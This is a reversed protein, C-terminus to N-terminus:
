RGRRFSAICASPLFRRGDYCFRFYILKTRACIIFELSNMGFKSFSRSVKILDIYFNSFCDKSTLNILLRHLNTFKIVAAQSFIKAPGIRGYVDLSTELRSATRNGKKQCNTGSGFHSMVGFSLIRGSKIVASHALTKCEARLHNSDCFRSEYM